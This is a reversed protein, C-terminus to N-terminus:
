MRLPRWLGNEKQFVKPPELQIPQQFNLGKFLKKIGGHDDIAKYLGKAEAITTHFSVLYSEPAYVWETRKPLIARFREALDKINWGTTVRVILADEKEGTFFDLKEGKAMKPVGQACNFIHAVELGMVLWEIEVEAAAKFPPVFTIHKGLKPPNFPINEQKLREQASSMVTALAGEEKIPSAICFTSQKM